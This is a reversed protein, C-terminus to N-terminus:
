VADDLLFSTLIPKGQKWAADRLVIGPERLLDPVAHEHPQERHRAGRHDPALAGSLDQGVRCAYGKMVGTETGWSELVEHRTM